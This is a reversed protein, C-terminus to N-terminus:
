RNSMWRCERNVAGAPVRSARLANIKACDLAAFFKYKEAPIAGALEEFAVVPKGCFASEKVYPADVTFAAVDHDSNHRFYFDALEAIDGHWINGAKGNYM